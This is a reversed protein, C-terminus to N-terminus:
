LEPWDCTVFYMMGAENRCYGSLDVRTLNLAGQMARCKAEDLFCMKLDLTVLHPWDAQYLNAFGEACAKLNNFALGLMELDPDPM